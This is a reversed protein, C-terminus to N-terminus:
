NSVTAHRRACTAKPCFPRAVHTCTTSCRSYNRSGNRLFTLRVRLHESAMNVGGGGSGAEVNGITSLTNRHVGREDTPRREDYAFILKRRSLSTLTAGALCGSTAARLRQRGQTLASAVQIVREDESWVDGVGGNGTRPDSPARAHGSRARQRTARAPPSRILMHRRM